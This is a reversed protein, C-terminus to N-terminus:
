TWLIITVISEVILTSSLTEAPLLILNCFKTMFLVKM